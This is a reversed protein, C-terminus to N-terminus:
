QATLIQFQEETLDCHYFLKFYRAVEDYLNFDVSDPYLTSAMWLMGLYRQVSPPFGMWNYPGHPVQYYRGSQIASVTAWSPDDGVTQYISEPAFLIVEPDWLLIQELDVENGTGRSSPDELVALNNSMLDIIESHYSDKAIVNLGESGTIYLINAKHVSQALKQMNGYTTECYRALEEAQEELGLLQGLMRYTEGITETTTSIHVFPIGVQEQLADLDEAVSGKTEGVDIVIQAGSSLLTEPNLNGKGGYLQGILPLQYYKPDMYAEAGPDWDTALGVLFDPCLAFLVIQALPGSAAIREPQAPLEVTRGVSDTFSFVSDQPSQATEGPPTDSDSSPASVTPQNSNETTTSQSCGGFSLLILVILLLSILRKM